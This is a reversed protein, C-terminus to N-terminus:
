KLSHKESDFFLLNDVKHEASFVNEKKERSTRYCFNVASLAYVLSGNTASCVKSVEQNTECNNKWFIKEQKAKHHLFTRYLTNDDGLPASEGLKAPEYNPADIM